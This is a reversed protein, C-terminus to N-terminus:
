FSLMHEMYVVNSSNNLCLSGNNEPLPPFEGWIWIRLRPCDKCAPSDLSLLKLSATNVREQVLM